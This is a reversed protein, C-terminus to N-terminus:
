KVNGTRTWGPYETDTSWMTECTEQYTPNYLNYKHTYKYCNNAQADFTYTEACYQSTVCNTGNLTGETCTYKEYKYGLTSDYKLYKYTVKKTSQANAPNKFYVITSKAPTTRDLPAIVEKTSETVACMNDSNLTGTTCVATSNCKKYEYLVKSTSTTSNTNKNTTTKKTTSSSKNTSTTNSSSNTSTATNNTKSADNTSTNNTETNTSPTTTEQKNCIGGTTNEDGACIKGNECNDFCGVYIIKYDSNKGCTLITKIAYNNELRTVESYSNNTDCTTGSSDKVTTILNKNILYKLKITKTSNLEVPLNDKNLYKITAAQVDNLQNTLVVPEPKITKTSKTTNKSCKTIGTIIFFIVILVVIIMILRKLIGFWNIKRDNEEYM